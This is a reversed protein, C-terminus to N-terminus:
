QRDNLRDDTVAQILLNFIEDVVESQCDDQHQEYEYRNLVDSLQESAAGVRLYCRLSDVYAYQQCDKKNSPLSFINKSYLLLFTSYIFASKFQM